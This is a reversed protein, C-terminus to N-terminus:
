QDVGRYKIWNKKEDRKEEIKLKEKKSGTESIKQYNSTDYKSRKSLSKRKRDASRGQTL